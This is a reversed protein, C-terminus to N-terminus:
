ECRDGRRAIYDIDSRSIGIDRLSRDDLARLEAMALRRDRGRRMRSRFGGILARLDVSSPRAAEPRVVCEGEAPLAGSCRSPADRPPDNRDVHEVYGPYMAEAYAACGALAQAITWSMVAFLVNPFAVETCIAVGTAVRTMLASVAASVARWSPDAEPPSRLTIINGNRRLSYGGSKDSYRALAFSSRDGSLHKEFQM